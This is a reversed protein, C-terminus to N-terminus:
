FRRAKPDVPVLAPTSEVPVPAAPKRKVRISTRDEAKVAEVEDDESEAGDESGEEDPELPESISLILASLTKLSLCIQRLSKSPDINSFERTWDGIDECESMDWCGSPFDNM